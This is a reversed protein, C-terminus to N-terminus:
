VTGPSGGDDPDEDDEEGVTLLIPFEYTRPEKTTRYNSSAQTTISLRYQGDTLSEPVEVIQESTTSRSFFEVKVPQADAEDKTFYIGNAPNDGKILLNAGNIIVNKGPTIQGNVSQTRVDTVQNVVPGTTAINLNFTVDKLADLLTKGPTFTVGVKNKEPDFKPAEGEFSGSLNLLWQGVGDVLSKGNVIAEVKKQDALTLINEITEKRYETREAVIDAAIDTNRYTGTIVPKATYDGPETTLVNDYLNANLITKAM